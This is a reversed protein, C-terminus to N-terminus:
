NSVRFNVGDRDKACSDGFDYKLTDCNPYIKGISGQKHSTKRILTKCLRLLDRRVLVREKKMKIYCTALRWETSSFVNKRDVHLLILSLRGRSSGASLKEVFNLAM